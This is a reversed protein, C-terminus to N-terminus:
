VFQPLHCFTNQLIQAAYKPGRLAGYYLLNSILTFALCSHKCVTSSMVNNTLKNNSISM